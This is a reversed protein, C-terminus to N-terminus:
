ASGPPPTESSALAAQADRLHIEIHATTPHTSGLVRQLIRGTDELTTVAENLDDLTAAPDNYLAWGYLSRLKLTLRHEELPPAVARDLCVGLLAHRWPAARDQSYLSPPALLPLPSPVSPSM